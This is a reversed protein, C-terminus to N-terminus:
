GWNLASLSNFWIGARAEVSGMM